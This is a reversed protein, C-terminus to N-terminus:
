TCARESHTHTHIHTHTHQHSSIGPHEQPLLTHVSYTGKHTHTHTDNSKQHTNKWRGAHTKGKKHTHTHTNAHAHQQGGVCIHSLNRQTPLSQCAGDPNAHDLITALTRTRENHTDTHTHTETHTVQGPPLLERKLGTEGPLNIQATRFGTRLNILSRTLDSRFRKFFRSKYYIWM